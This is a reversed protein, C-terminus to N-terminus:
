GEAPIYLLLMRTNFGEECGPCSRVGKVNRCLTAAFLCYLRFLIKYGEAGFGRETWNRGQFRNYSTWFNDASWKATFSDMGRQTIGEVFSEYPIDTSPQKNQQRACNPEGHGSARSRPPKGFVESIYDQMGRNFHSYNGKYEYKELITLLGEKQCM